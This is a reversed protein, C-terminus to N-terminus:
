RMKGTEDYVWVPMGMKKARAICDNTGSAKGLPFALVLAEPFRELMRQNRKHGAGRDYDGDPGRNWHAPMGYYDVQHKKAWGEAMMDPSGPCAGHVVLEPDHHALADHVVQWNLWIRSGTVIVVKETM